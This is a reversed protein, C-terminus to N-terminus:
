DAATPPRAADDAAEALAADLWARAAEGLEADLEERSTLM